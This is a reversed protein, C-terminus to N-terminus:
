ADGRAVGAEELFTIMGELDFYFMQARALRGDRVQYDALTETEFRRGRPDLGRWLYNVIVRGDKGTALVRPDMRRTEADPQLPFWTQAFAESMTAVEPGSFSGGYPLGPQWHFEIEPHYLKGLRELRRDEIARLVQTVVQANEQPTMQKEM